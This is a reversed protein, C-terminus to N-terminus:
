SAPQGVRYFSAYLVPILGLTILTGLALGGMMVVALSNWIAGGFLWLPLLGLICVMKTMVIPRLRKAAADEIAQLAPVGERRAEEIADLLLVANNVIIGALALLGLTGVFTLTTGSITLALAAGISVFPISALVILSKRVSDFQWVFLLFMVVVCAPLLKAIANNANANEEIEGGLAVSVKGDATLRATTTAVLDAIGQATLKPHRALLTVTRQQDVRQIVSPQSALSIHAVQGLTVATQQGAGQVPLAQLRAISDRLNGNGRVVVPLLTDGERYHSAVSGALLTDLSQAIDRSSLGAAHARAQDVRVDLQLIAREADSSLQQMGPIAQLAAYLQEAAALHSRGDNSSLRFQAVGADSSGMSFRKPEFRVDPFRAALKSSLGAIADAHSVGDVLTLVAYARHGAPTPPNLAM